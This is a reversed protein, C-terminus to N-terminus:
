RTVRGVGTHRFGAQSRWSQSAMGDFHQASDEAPNEDQM